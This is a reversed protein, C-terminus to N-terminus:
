MKRAGMRALMEQLEEVSIDLKEVLRGYLMATPVMRGRREKELEAMTLLVVREKRTLGDRVDPLDDYATSRRRSAMSAGYRQVSRSDLKRCALDRDSSANQLPRTSRCARQREHRNVDVAYDRDERPIM